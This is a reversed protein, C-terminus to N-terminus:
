QEDRLKQLIGNVATLIKDQALASTSNWTSSFCWETGDQATLAYTLNLVGPENGGKFAISKWDKKNLNGPNVQVAPIDKVADISKCLSSASAYWEIGEQYSPTVRIADPLPLDALGSLIERKRDLPATAYAGALSTSAKLQFFQRSKLFPIQGSIKELSEQPIHDMLLDTATNDSQSMMLVAATQVTVPQGEPWDQMIGSPLSVQGPELTLVTNWDLKGAAISDKLAELVFLKFASGIALKRDERYTGAPEGNKLLLYSANDALEPLDGLLDTLSARSAIQKVQLSNIKGATNLALQVEITYGSTSIRYRGEDGEETIDEAKGYTKELKEIIAKLKDHPVARLFETSFASADAAGTNWAEMLLESGPSKAQDDAAQVPSLLLFTGLLAILVRQM